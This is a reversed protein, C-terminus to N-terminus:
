RKKEARYARGEQRVIEILNGMTLNMDIVHLGWDARVQGDIVVDGTIADTRKQGPTSHTTIALYHHTGDNRCEASVLGPVEVFPTTIPQPPQTWPGPPVSDVIPPEIGSALYAHLSGSGGGLAAPNV